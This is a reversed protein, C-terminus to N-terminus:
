PQDPIREVQVREATARAVFTGLVNGSADFTTVRAVHSFSQGDEALRITRNIKQTGLYAGTLPNFRFFVMTSAYMRGGIREWSGYSATRAAQWENAMEILSGDDTFVQLSHLPPLPAPRNVTAQWTGVIQNGSSQADAGSAVSVAVAAVVATALVVIIGGFALRKRRGNRARVADASRRGRVVAARRWEEAERELDAQHERGLMGYTEDM